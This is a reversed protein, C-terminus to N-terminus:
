DIEALDLTLRNGLDKDVPRDNGKLRTVTLYLVVSRRYLTGSSM